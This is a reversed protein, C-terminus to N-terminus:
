RNLIHFFALLKNRRNIHASGPIYMNKAIEGITVGDGAPATLATDQPALTRIYNDAESRNRCGKCVKQHQKGTSDLWYYYWRHVDRGNRGKIPKRSVHYEM